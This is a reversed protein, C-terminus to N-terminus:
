PTHCHFAGMAGHTGADLRGTASKFQSFYVEGMARMGDPLFLFFIMKETM